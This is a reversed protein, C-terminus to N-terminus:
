WRSCCPPQWSRAWQPGPARPRWATFAQILTSHRPLLCHRPAADGGAQMSPGQENHTSTHTHTATQYTRVPPPVAWLCPEYHPAHPELREGPGLTPGTARDRTPGAGLPSSIRAHPGRRSLARHPTHVGPFARVPVTWPRAPQAPRPLPGPSMDRSSPDSVRDRAACHLVAYQRRVLLFPEKLGPSEHIAKLPPRANRM